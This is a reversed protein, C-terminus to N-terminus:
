FPRDHRHNLFARRAEGCPPCRMRRVRENNSRLRIAAACCSSRGELRDFRGDFGGGCQVRAQRCASCADRTIIAAMYRSGDDEIACVMV